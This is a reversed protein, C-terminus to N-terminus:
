PAGGAPRRRARGCLFAFRTEHADCQWGLAGLDRAIEDPSWFRKVIQHTSGDRLVRTMREGLERRGAVVPRDGAPRAPGHAAVHDPRANDCFLVTGGPALARDVLAWFVDWRAAPVHSIWFAFTVTDFRRPPVWDFIDAVVHEVPAGTRPGKAANLALAEASSDVATVRAAYRALERTWNGTGAALELTDGLAGAGGLWAHLRGVDDAWAKGFEPGFDFDHRREWWDDYEPARAQYYAIQEALLDDVDM